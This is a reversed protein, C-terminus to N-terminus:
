SYTIALPRYAGSSGAWTFTQTLSLWLSASSHVITTLREDDTGADLFTYTQVYDSATQIKELTTGTSIPSGDPNTVVLWNKTPDSYVPVVSAVRNTDKDQIGVSTPWAM